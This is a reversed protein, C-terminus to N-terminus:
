VDISKRIHQALTTIALPKPLFSKSPSIPAAYGSTLIVPIGPWRSQVTEVLEGGTMLPMFFDSIVLRIKTEKELRRVAEEGNSAQYVRYGLTEVVAALAKRVAPDDEVILIAEGQGAPRKRSEPPHPRAPAAVLPLTVTFESGKGPKSKCAIRGGAREVIERCVALGMGEAQQRQRTTFGPEFIRKLGDATIGEGTDSVALTASKGRVDCSVELRGGSPMAECANAALNLLLTELELVDARVWAATSTENITVETEERALRRFLPKLDRLVTGLNVTVPHEPKAHSVRHIQATLDRARGVAGMMEGLYEANESGPEAELQLLETYGQLVALVNNFDHAIGRACEGFVSQKQRHRLQAAMERSRTVDELTGSFCGKSGPVRTERLWLTRGGSALFRYELTQPEGKVAAADWQAVAVVDDPHVFQLWESRGGDLSPTKGVLPEFAGQLTMPGRPECQYFVQGAAKWVAEFDNEGPRFAKPAPKSSPPHPSKM